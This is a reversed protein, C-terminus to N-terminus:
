MAVCSTYTSTMRRFNQSKLQLKNKLNHFFRLSQNNLLWIHHSRVMIEILTDFLLFNDSDDLVRNLYVAARLRDEPKKINLNLMSKLQNLLPSLEGEPIEDGLPYERHSILDIFFQEIPDVSPAVKAM